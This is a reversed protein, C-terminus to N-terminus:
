NVVTPEHHVPFNVSRAIFCMAHAQGHLSMALDPDCQPAISVTPRLTVSTFEGAGSPSVAMTGVADDAYATVVVGAESALHLYWLQHCQALSAVLLQEPNWRTPNGRFAPDASGLLLPADGSRVEHDRDYDRYGTTGSGRNGTWTLSVAYTHTGSSM